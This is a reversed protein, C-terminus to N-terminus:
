ATKRALRALRWPKPAKLAEGFPRSSIVFVTTQDRSSGHVGLYIRPYFSVAQWNGRLCLQTSQTCDTTWLAQPIAMPNEVQVATVYRHGSRWSALPLAIVNAQNFLAVHKTTVMPTRTIAPHATLLREPAYLQQIAYRMLTVQDVTIQPSRNQNTTIANVHVVSPLVISLPADDAVSKGQLDLYVVTQKSPLCVMLRQPSFVQHATMYLTGANNYLTLRDRTLATNTNHGVNCPGLRVPVSFSILREKGVPLDVPIPLKHWVIHETDPVNMVLTTPPTHAVARSALLLLLSGCLWVTYAQKYRIM